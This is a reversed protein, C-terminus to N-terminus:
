NLIYQVFLFGQFGRSLYFWSKDQLVHFFPKQCSCKLTATTLLENLMEQHLLWLKVRARCAVTHGHTPKGRKPAQRLANSCCVAEPTM